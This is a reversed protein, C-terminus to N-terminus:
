RERGGGNEDRERGNEYRDIDNEKERERRREFSNEKPLHNHTTFDSVLSEFDLKSM